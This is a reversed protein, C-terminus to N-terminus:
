RRRDLYRTMMAWYGLTVAMGAATAIVTPRWRRRWAGALAALLAVSGFVNLLLAFDRPRNVIWQEEGLMARTSWASRDTPEPFVVPNLAFWAGVWAADRWSRRWVPLLVLPTTAWRTWASWPNAHRAFVARRM